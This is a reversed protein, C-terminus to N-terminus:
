WQGIANSLGRPTFHPNLLLRLKTHMPPDRFVIWKSLVKFIPAYDCRQQESLENELFAMRDSSFHAADRLVQVVDNYSTLIWGGWRENWHVPDADRLEHYYSHPDLIVDHAMLDDSIAIM